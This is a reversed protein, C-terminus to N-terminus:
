TIRLYPLVNWTTSCITIIMIITTIAMTIILLEPKSFFFSFVFHAWPLPSNSLAMKNQHDLCRTPTIVDM